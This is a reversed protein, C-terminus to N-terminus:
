NLSLISLHDEATARQFKDLAEGFKLEVKEFSTQAQLQEPLPDDYYTFFHTKKGTIRRAFLTETDCMLKERFTLTSFIYDFVRFFARLMFVIANYVSKFFSPESKAFLSAKSDKLIQNAEKKLAVLDHTRSFTKLARNLPKIFTDLAPQNKELLKEQENFEEKLAKVIEIQKKNFLIRSALQIEEETLAVAKKDPNTHYKKFIHDFVAAGLKEQLLKISASLLGLRAYLGKEQELNIDLAKAHQTVRSLARIAVELALKPDSEHMVEANVLGANLIDLFIKTQEATLASPTQEPTPMSKLMRESAQLTKEDILKPQVEHLRKKTAIVDSDQDFTDMFSNFKEHEQMAAAILLRFTLPLEFGDLESVKAAEIHECVVAFMNLFRKYAEVPKDKLRGTIALELELYKEADRFEKTYKTTSMNVFEM